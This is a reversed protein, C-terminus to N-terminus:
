LYTLNYNLSLRCLVSTLTTGGVRSLKVFVIGRSPPHPALKFLRTDEHKPEQQGDATTSLLLCWLLTATLSSWQMPKDAIRVLVRM